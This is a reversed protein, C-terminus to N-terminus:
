WRLRQGYWTGALFNRRRNRHRFVCCMRLHLFAAVPLYAPMMTDFVGAITRENLREGGIWGTPSDTLDELCARCKLESALDCSVDLCQLRSWNAGSLREAEFLDATM